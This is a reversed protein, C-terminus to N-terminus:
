RTMDSGTDARARRSSRRQFAGVGHGSRDEPELIHM